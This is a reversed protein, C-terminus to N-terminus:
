LLEGLLDDSNIKNKAARLEAMIAAVKENDRLAAKEEKSKGALFEEIATKSKGTLRMLASLLLGGGSAGTGDGRVKNWTGNEGSIRDLIEKVANYKDDITASRGTDPNRAIAAGDVLKQKLGHMIAAEQIDPSLTAADITLTRGDSFALTIIQENITAEIAPTRTTTTM